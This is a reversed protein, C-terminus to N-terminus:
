DLTAKIKENHIFFPHLLSPTTTALTDGDAIHTVLKQLTTFGGATSM